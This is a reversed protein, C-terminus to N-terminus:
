QFPLEKFLIRLRLTVENRHMDLKVGHLRAWKVGLIVPYHGLSTLLMPLQEIHDGIKMTTWTYHTLTGGAIPRGDVVTLTRPTSLPYVPFSHEHAYSENMFAIGTGGSDVLSPPRVKGM